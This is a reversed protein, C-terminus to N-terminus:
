AKTLLKNWKHKVVDWQYGEIQKRALHLSAGTARALYAARDFAMQQKEQPDLVVFIKKFLSM